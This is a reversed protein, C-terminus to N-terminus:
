LGKLWTMPKDVPRLNVVSVGCIVGGSGGAREELLGNAPVDAVSRELALWESRVGLLM